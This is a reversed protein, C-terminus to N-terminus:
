RRRKSYPPNGGAKREGSRQRRAGLRAGRRGGGVSEGAHLDAEDNGKVVVERKSAGANFGQAGGQGGGQAVLNNEDVITAGIAGALPEGREGSREADDEVVAIEAVGAGVITSGGESLTLEQGEEVVVEDEKGAPELGQEGGVTREGVTGPEDAIDLEVGAGAFDIVGADDDIGLAFGDM